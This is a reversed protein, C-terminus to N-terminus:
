CVSLPGVVSPATSQRGIDPGMRPKCPYIEKTTPGRPDNVVRSTDVVKGGKCPAESYSNGCRYVAPQAQASSFPLAVVAVFTTLRLWPTRQSFGPPHRRLRRGSDREAILEKPSPQFGSDSEAASTAAVKAAAGPAVSM